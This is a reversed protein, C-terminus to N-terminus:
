SDQRFTNTHGNFRTKFTNATSGIYIKEENNSNITAQYIISKQLCNGDLPCQNPDRCNCKTTSTARANDQELLRRNHAMIVSKINGTCSYSLKITNKNLFKHYPHSTNFHKQVLKLFKQGLNDKVSSCFPPQYYIINKRTRRKRNDKKPTHVMNVDNYNSDRLANIYDAKARDFIEQNSSLTSIRRNVMNPIEKKIFKPHNSNNDVYRIQSNPKRYPRYNGTRLDLEIDLFEAKELGMDITIKFGEENFTKHLNKKLRELQVDPIKRIVMLSDDRYIGMNKRNLLSKTRNLLYLGVLECIEAGHFAGM